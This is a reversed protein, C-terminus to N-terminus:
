KLNLVEEKCFKHYIKIKYQNFNTEIDDTTCIVNGNWDMFVEDNEEVRYYYKGEYYFSPKLFYLGYDFDIKCYECKKFKRDIPETSYFSGNSDEVNFYDRLLKKVITLLDKDSKDVILSKLLVKQLEKYYEDEDKVQMYM